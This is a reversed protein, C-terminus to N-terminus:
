SRKGGTEMELIAAQLVPVVAAWQDLSLSVGKRTPHYVGAKDRFDTRLDLFRHGRFLSERLVLREGANKEMSALERNENEHKEVM